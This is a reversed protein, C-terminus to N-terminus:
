RPGGGLRRYAEALTRPSLRPRMLADVNGIIHRPTSMACVLTSPVRSQRALPGRLCVETVWRRRQRRTLDRPAMALREAFGDPGGFPRYWMTLATAPAEGADLADSAPLQAVPPPAHASVARVQALSGCIGWLRTLGRAVFSEALAAFADYEAATAPCRHALFIDVRDTRLAALSTELSRTVRAPDFAQPVAAPTARRAIQARLRSLPALLTSAVPIIRRRLPSISAPEIGAKTCLVVHERRGQLAAGIIAEAEGHGYSRALDIGTVGLELALALARRATGPAVRGGVSAAGFFLPSVPAMAPAISTSPLPTHM